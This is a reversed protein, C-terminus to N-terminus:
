QEISVCTPSWSFLGAVGSRSRHGGRPVRRAPDFHAGTAYQSERHMGRGSNLTSRVISIAQRRSHPEYFM